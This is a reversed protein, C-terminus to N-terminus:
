YYRFRYYRQFNSKGHPGQRSQNTKIQSTLLQETEPGYVNAVTNPETDLRNNNTNNFDFTIGTDEEEEFAEEINVKPLTPSSPASFNWDFSSKSDEKQLPTKQVM